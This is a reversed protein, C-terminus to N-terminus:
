ARLYLSDIVQTGDATFIKKVSGSDLQIKETIDGLVQNFSHATKKNLLVRVAKRPKSGHRIVTILKPKIYDKNDDSGYTSSGDSQDHTVHDSYMQGDQRCAAAVASSYDVKKFNRTSACVYSDSEQLDDLSTIVQSGDLTFVYRVGKPLVTRDGLPSNTLEALLADFTRFRESSVAYVIGPYFRDGNRFFRIKKAKRDAQQQLLTSRILYGHASHTPSVRGSRNMQRTSARARDAFSPFHEETM